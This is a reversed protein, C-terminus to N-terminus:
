PLREEKSTLSRSARILHTLGETRVARFLLGTRWFAVAAMGHALVAFLPPTERTYYTWCERTTGWRELFYGLGTGAAFTLVAGRHDTPTAILLACLGLAIWTFSKNLTPWVFFLMLLYFAPFILWYLIKSIPLQLNTIQTLTRYLRDIALSAIPWAPIIWLPPRELTYYTWLNTQTGWSEIVLGGALGVAVILADAKLDAGSMILLSMAAFVGLLLWDLQVWLPRSPDATAFYDVVLPWWVVIIVFLTAIFASLLLYSSRTWGLRALAAAGGRRIARVLTADHFRPADDANM